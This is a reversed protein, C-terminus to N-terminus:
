DKMKVDFTRKVMNKGERGIAYFRGDSLTGLRDVRDM